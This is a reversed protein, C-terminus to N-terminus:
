SNHRDLLQPANHLACRLFAALDFGAGKRATQRRPWNYNYNSKYSSPCGASASPLHQTLSTPAPTTCASLVARGRVWRGM